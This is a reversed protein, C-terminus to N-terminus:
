DGRMGSDADTGPRPHYLIVVRGVRRVIECGVRAALDAAARDCQETSDAAIRVKLLDREAAAARVHEVAAETLRDASLQAVPKLPHSAALLAKRKKPTLPM